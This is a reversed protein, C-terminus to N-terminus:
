KAIQSPAVFMGLHPIGSFLMLFTAWLRQGLTRLVSWDFTIAWFLKVIKKGQIKGQTALFILLVIDPWTESRAWIGLPGFNGLYWSDLRNWDHPAVQVLVVWAIPCGYPLLLASSSRPWSQWQWSARPWHSHLTLKMKFTFYQFSYSQGSEGCLLVQWM